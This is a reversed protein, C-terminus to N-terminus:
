GQEDRALIEEAVRKTREDDVDIALRGEPMVLIRMEIGFRRSLRAAMQDVSHRRLLYLLMNAPGFARLIRAPRKSFQGGQRFARMVKLAHDNSLWFMNCNSFDGDRFRFFRIEGEPHTALIDEKRALTAWADAGGGRAERELRHLAAPTMLVNDATTILLPFGTAAAAATVSEVLGTGAKLITLRGSERLSAVAPEGGVVAPDEISVFLRAQPFAEAVIGLTRVLMPVGRVPVLCKHSVGAREALPDLRGARRAALILVNLTNDLAM